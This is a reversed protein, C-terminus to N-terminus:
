PVDDEEEPPPKLRRQLLSKVPSPIHQVGLHDQIRQLQEELLDLCQFIRMVDLCRASGKLRMTGILFEKMEIVGSSDVDLLEFMATVDSVDLQHGAMYAMVRQDKLYDYLEERTMFDNGDVDAEKFLDQMDRLFTETRAIESQILLDRDRIQLAQEVFIAFLVNLVGFVVVIIYASFFVVYIPAVCMLPQVVNYWDLGGTICLLLTFLARPLNPFHALINDRLVSEEMLEGRLNCVQLAAALLAQPQGYLIVLRERLEEIRLTVNVRCGTKAILRQVSAGGQGIISSVISNPVVLKLMVQSADEQVYVTHLRELVLSLCREVNTAPGSALLIREHTGPFFQECGSLQMECKSLFEIQGIMSGGRGIIAGAMYGPVLM